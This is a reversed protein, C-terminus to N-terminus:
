PARALIGVSVASATFFLVMGLAVFFNKLSFRFVGQCGVGVM